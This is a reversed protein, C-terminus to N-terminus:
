RAKLLEPHHKKIHHRTNQRQTYHNNCKKCYTKNLKNSLHCDQSHSNAEWDGKNTCIGILGRYFQYKTHLSNLHYYVEWDRETFLCTLNPNKEIHCPEFEDLESM